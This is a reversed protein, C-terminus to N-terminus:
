IDSQKKLILGALAGINELNSIEDATFRIGFAKEISVVLRIHALSDWGDVERATTYESIILGDNDFVDQFIPTLQQVISLINKSM